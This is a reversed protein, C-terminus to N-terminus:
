NVLKKRAFEIISDSTGQYDQSSLSINYDPAIGFETSEKNSNYMPCASLRVSWGNPLESSFPMGAGGGTKDGVIIARDCCKMYKVFENAASYVSRNTLVAVKKQWRVGSSPKLKQEEMSSFDDHGKGTKHQMYGVTTEQNFFRAALKQASTILGGGNERIDIIIANCTELSAFMQDLNGEGFDNEFSNCVIYGINDDLITYKLGSAINYNTGLYKRQLTDSYNEPYDEHWNWYRGYDYSSYLNVHGDKVESLMNCLIEFMQKENLTNDIQQSYKEHVANWDLGYQQAKYTFFCYHQDMISWLAEFNGNPTNGYDDERICSACLSVISLLIIITHVKMKCEDNQFTKCFWDYDCEVM